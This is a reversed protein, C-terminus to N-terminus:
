LSSLLLEKASDLDLKGNKLRPLEDVFAICKPSMSYPLSMFIICKLAAEDTDRKEVISGIHKVGDIEVETAIGTIVGDWSTLVPGCNKLRYKKSIGM